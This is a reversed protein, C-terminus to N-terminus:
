RTFGSPKGFQTTGGGDSQSGILMFRNLRLESSGLRTVFIVRILILVTNFFVGLKYRRFFIIVNKVQKM